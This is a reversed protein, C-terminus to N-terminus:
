VNIMADEILYLFKNYDVSYADYLTKYILNYDIQELLKINYEKCIRKYVYMVKSNEMCVYIEKMDKIFADYDLNPKIEAKTESLKLLDQFLDRYKNDFTSLRKVNELFTKKDEIHMKDAFIDYESKQLNHEKLEM